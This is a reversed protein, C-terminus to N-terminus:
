PLYQEEIKTITSGSVTLWYPAGRVGRLDPDSGSFVDLLTSVSKPTAEAVRGPWTWFVVKATKSVTFDRLKPNDNVIYYDNPPPSEDGHATAATAADDGSLM